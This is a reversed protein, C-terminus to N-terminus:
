DIQQIASKLDFLAIRRFHNFCFDLGPYFRHRASGINNGKDPTEVAEVIRFHFAHTRLEPFGSQIIGDADNKGSQCLASRGDDTQFIKM